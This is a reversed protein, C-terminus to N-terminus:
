HTSGLASVDSDAAARTKFCSRCELSMVIGQINLNLWYCTYGCIYRGTILNVPFPGVYDIAISIINAQIAM